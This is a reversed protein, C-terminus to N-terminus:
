CLMVALSITVHYVIIYKHKQVAGDNSFSLLVVFLTCTLLNHALLFLAKFYSTVEERWIGHLENNVIPMANSAIYDNYIQLKYFTTLLNCQKVKTKDIYRCLIILCKLIFM